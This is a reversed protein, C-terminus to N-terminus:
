ARKKFAGVGWRVVSIAFATPAAGIICGIAVWIAMFMLMMASMGAEEPSAIRWPQILLLGLLYSIGFALRFSSGRRRTVESFIMLGSMLIASLGIVLIFSFDVRSGYWRATRNEMGRHRAFASVSLPRDPVRTFSM